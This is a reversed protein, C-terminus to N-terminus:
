VWEGSIEGVEEDSKRRRRWVIFLFLGLIVAFASASVLWWGNAGLGQQPVERNGSQATTSGHAVTDTVVIGVTMSAPQGNEATGIAVLTHEGAAMAEPLVFEDGRVANSEVTARTLLVPTSHGWVDVITGNKFGSVSLRLTGGRVVSITRAALLKAESGNQLVSIHMTLGQSSLVVQTSTSTLSSAIPAGNVMVAGTGPSMETVTPAAPAAPPNATPQASTAAADAVRAAVPASAAAVGVVSAEADLYGSRTATVTVRSVQGAGLGNVTVRAANRTAVAGNTSTFVYNVATSYNAIDFAFGGTVSAAGTLIPVTGAALANGSVTVAADQHGALTVTVTVDASAGVGLGTASVSSGTRAATAGNTATFTYSAGPDFNTIDFAFGGAVSVPASTTPVVGAGLSSGSASASTTTYGARAATVTVTASTAPVLGHVTVTSGSLLATAGGTAALTYAYDASYNTIAFSYGDGLSTSTSPIPAVGALLASGHVVASATSEGLLTATVTVDSSAAPALGSVTVAAGSSSVTAGGTGGFSYLLGPTYNSITFSFGDSTSTVGSMTPAIGLALAAGSRTASAATSGSRTVTVTVDSTGGAAVGSVTVSSGIRTVMAGNTAVLSYASSPDYNTIQFTYGDSTRTAGTFLPSIGAILASGAVSVSATAHGALSAAVGIVSSAGSSLGTVTVTAGLRTVVAGNTATVVYSTANSYNDITFSFGDASSTPASTTPVVGPALPTISGTVAAPGTGYSNTATVEFIYGTGNTLGSVTASTASVTSGYLVWATPASALAYYISYGTIPSAGTSGVGWTLPVRGDGSVGTLASVAGPITSPTVAVRPASRVSYGASNQAQISVYYTTNNSLGTLTCTLTVTSCTTIQSGATANSFATATYSTIASGNDNPAAWSVVAIGNQGNAVISSSAPADPFSFPTASVSSSAASPGNASVARLAVAYSTGNALSPIIIPSSSSSAALWAGSNLQYEYETIAPGGVNSETFALSFFANGPTLSTITPASPRALPTVAMRPGSAVSAGAANQAVVSVFYQTGNTLGSISCAAVASTCSSVVTTSTSTAYANAVYASVASGGDSVPATWAVDASATNSQALVGTPADPVTRPTTSAPISGAGSGISNDARVLVSYSAGNTLAAITFPSSLTGANLWSSGGNLSYEIASVPSGGNGTLAFSVQVSRNLPALVISPAGPTASPAVITDASAVGSGVVNVARVAVPYSTGNAIRTSPNSSLASITLPSASSSAAAWTTGGDTTYEWGTILSGGTPGSTVAVSLSQDARTVGTIAPQGPVSVPTGSVAASTAGIGQSNVARVSVSYPFGNILGGIAFSTGLSGTGIWSGAGLRYQYETIAAGGNSAPQFGVDLSSPGVTVSTITPASPTTEAIGAAVASATGDGVANVARVEVFYTTGNVLPTTGDSSLTSIVLPSATTGAARALWTAGGDTSYQYSTVPAGGDSNPATFAASLQLNSGAVTNGVITPAGPVTAPTASQPASGAGTGVANVARVSVSYATGNVLGSVFIPSSLSTAATWAGATTLQYQYATVTSGGSAGPTFAISLSGDGTVISTVAPAAPVGPTTVSTTQSAAGAGTSTVARIAISYTTGNSLGTITIPSSTSGAAVWTVSGDLQYQYGTIAGGGSYGPTFSVTASGVGTALSTISPAGPLAEPTAAVATSAAGAGIASVARLQVSYQTGNLLGAIVVPSSASGSSIWSGTGNLQYEYDLVPVGSASASFAVSLSGDAPAVSTISPAAPPGVPTVPASPASAAGNGVSNVAMVQFVYATGDTLGTVTASTATSVADSFTTWVTPASALAYQVVYDTIASEGVLAPAAWTLAVSSDAATGSVATPAGPAGTTYSITVSGNANNDPYYQYSDTLGALSATSNGGPAGGYGYWENSTGSGFQIDGQAGGSVGGGGAGSGGGDCNNGPIVSCVYAVTIGNQGTASVVDTRATFTSGAVRGITPPYQGSGGSGGAGGAVLTSGGTTIVTAAGGAGGDGSSGNYGAVGGNGGAFGGLPNQGGAAAGATYTSHSGTTDSLGTAGGQGVAVTLVQGPTVSMTGTVVGQYGGAPSPGSADAGGRGGEAGMMSLTLQSVGAPVTYTTTSGTYGFTQTVTSPGATAAIPMAVIVASVVTASVFAAALRV